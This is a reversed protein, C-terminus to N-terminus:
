RVAHGCNGTLADTQKRDFCYIRRAYDGPRTCLEIRYYGASGKAFVAYVDDFVKEECEEQAYRRHKQFTPFMDTFLRIVEDFEAILEASRLRPHLTFFTNFYSENKYYGREYAFLSKPIDSGFGRVEEENELLYAAYLEPLHKVIEIDMDKEAKIAADAEGQPASQSKSDPEFADLGSAKKAEAIERSGFLWGKDPLGATKVPDADSYKTLRYVGKEYMKTLYKRYVAAAKTPYVACAKKNDDTLYWM